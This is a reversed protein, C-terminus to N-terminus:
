LSGSCRQIGCSTLAYLVGDLTTLPSSGLAYIKAHLLVVAIAAVSRAIDLVYSMYPKLNDEFSLTSHFAEFFGRSGARSTSGSQLGVRVPDHSQPM